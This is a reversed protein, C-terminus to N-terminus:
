RHNVARKASEYGGRFIMEFDQPSPSSLTTPYDQAPQGIKIYIGKGRNVIYSFFERTRLIDVQSMAIELLRRLNSSPRGRAKFGIPASANSVILFDIESDLGRGVKHLAEIGLNDYVGGDWLSYQDKVAVSGHKGHKDKTFKLGQTRLLYPGILVPFAASAAIMDAIPLTPNQVYGISSDGMYDRRLRFSKGTEFTTCNIEWFPFEPLDQLSGAIGWKEELMKALMQVRHNWHGPSVILRRLAAAQIDKEIMLKQVKPRVSELFEKESPWKNGSAAFIAGICLSAGSVSSINAIKSFYGAEALHQMAGLHFIAARIGGGSLALGIRAKSSIM